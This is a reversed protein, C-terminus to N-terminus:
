STELKVGLEQLMQPVFFHDWCSNRLNEGVRPFGLHYIPKGFRDSVFKVAPCIDADHSGIVGVDFTNDIAMQIIDTVIATDIGKEITRKLEDGCQPCTSIEHACKRCRFRGRTPKRERVTVAYGPFGDMAHLFRRLGADGQPDVSAYVHTGSYVVNEGRRAAIANCVVTPLTGKWPIKHPDGQADKGLLDNWHLQFNWFDFFLRVKTM